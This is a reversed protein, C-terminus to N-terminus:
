THWHVLFYWLAQMFSYKLFIIFVFAKNTKKVSIKIFCGKKKKSEVAFMINLTPNLYKINKNLSKDLYVFKRRNSLKFRFRNDSVFCFVFENLCRETKYNPCLGTQNLLYNFWNRFQINLFFYRRIAM